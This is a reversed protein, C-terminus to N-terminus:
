GNNVGNELIAREADLDRVEADVETFANPFRAKLKAINTRLMQEPNGGLMISLEYFLNTLKDVGASVMLSDLTKGYFMVKKTHDLLAGAASRIESIKRMATEATTLQATNEINATPNLDLGLTNGSIALYWCADGCEELLNVNDWESIFVKGEVADYIENIETAVGIISHLLRNTLGLDIVADQLPLKTSETRIADKTYESFTYPKGM